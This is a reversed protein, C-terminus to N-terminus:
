TLADLTDNYLELMVNNYQGWENAIQAQRAEYRVISSPTWSDADLEDDVDFAVFAAELKRVETTAYGLEKYERDSLLEELTNTMANIADWAFDFERASCTMLDLAQLLVGQPMGMVCAWHSLKPLLKRMRPRNRGLSLVHRMGLIIVTITAKLAQTNATLATSM